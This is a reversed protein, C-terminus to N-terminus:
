GGSTGGFLFTILAIISAIAGAIGLLAFLWHEKITETAFAFYGGYIETLRANTKITGDATRDVINALIDVKRLTSQHLKVYEGNEFAKAEDEGNLFNLDSISNKKILSALRPHGVYGVGYLGILLRALDCLQSEHIEFPKDGLVKCRHELAPFGYNIDRMNWHLWIHNKHKEAYEYFEKLMKKEFEDYNANIDELTLKKDREALQHISFSTTQGSALNRVAISTIRPSTGDPRDYFSECSYHVIVVNNRNDIIQALQTKADRRRRLRKSAESM